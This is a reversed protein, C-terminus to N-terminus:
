INGTNRPIQVEFRSGKPDVRQGCCGRPPPSSPSTAGPAPTSSFVMGGAAYM